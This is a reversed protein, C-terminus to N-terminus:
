PSYKMNLSNLRCIGSHTVKQQHFHKWKGMQQQGKAWDKSMFDMARHSEHLRMWKCRREQLSSYFLLHIFCPFQSFGTHGIINIKPSSISVVQYLHVHLSSPSLLFSPLLKLLCSFLWAPIVPSTPTRIKICPNSVLSAAPQMQGYSWSYHLHCSCNIVSASGPSALPAM